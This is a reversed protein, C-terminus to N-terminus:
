KGEEMYLTVDETYDGGEYEQTCAEDTYLGTYGEPQVLTVACGKGVSMELTREQDTGPDIVFTVTRSDENDLQDMLDQSAEYVDPETDVTTSSLLFETGDESVECCEQSQLIHTAEDVTYIFRLGDGEQYLLSAYSDKVQDGSVETTVVVVGDEAEESVLTEGSFDSSIYNSQNQKLFEEYSADDIFCYRYPLNSESSFGYGEGDQIIDVDGDSNEYVFTNEGLYVYDSYTEAGQNDYYITHIGIEGNKELVAELTNAAEMQSLIDDQTEESESMQVNESSNETEQAFVPTVTMFGCALIGSLIYLKKRM